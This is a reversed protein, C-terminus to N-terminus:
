EEDIYNDFPELDDDSFDDEEDDFIYNAFCSEYFNDYLGCNGKLDQGVYSVDFTGDDQSFAELEEEEYGGDKDRSESTIHFMSVDEPALKMVNTRVFIEKATEIAEYPNESTVEITRNFLVGMNVKYKKLGNENKEVKFEEMRKGKRSM